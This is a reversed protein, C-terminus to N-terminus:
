LGKRTSAHPMQMTRHFTCHQYHILLGLLWWHIKFCNRTSSTILWLFRTSTVWTGRTRIKIKTKINLTPLHQSLNAPLCQSLTTLLRQQQLIPSEVNLWLIMQKEKNRKRSTVLSSGWVVRHGLPIKESKLGQEIREGIAVLDFFRSSINGFMKEFFPSQITDM